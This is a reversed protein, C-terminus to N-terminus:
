ADSRSGAWRRECGEINEVMCVNSRRPRLQFFSGMSRRIRQEWRFCFAGSVLPVLFIAGASETLESTGGGLSDRLRRQPLASRTETHAHANEGISKIQE